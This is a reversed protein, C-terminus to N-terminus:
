DCYSRCCFPCGTILRKGAEKLTKEDDFINQRCSPCDGGKMIFFPYGNKLCYKEQKKSAKEKQKESIM